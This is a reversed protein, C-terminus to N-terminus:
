LVRKANDYSRKLEKKFLKLSEADHCREIPEFPFDEVNDGFIKPYARILESLKVHWMAWKHSATITVIIEGWGASNRLGQVLDIVIDEGGIQTNIDKYKPITYERNEWMSESDFKVDKKKLPYNNRSTVTGASDFTIGQTTLKTFYNFVSNFTADRHRRCYKWGEYHNLFLFLTNEGTPCCGHCHNCYSTRISTLPGPEDVGKCARIICTSMVSGYDVGSAPACRIENGSRHPPNVRTELKKIEASAM